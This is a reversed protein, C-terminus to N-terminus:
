VTMCWIQSYSRFFWGVVRQFSSTQNLFVNYIPWVSALSPNPNNYGELIFKLNRPFFFKKYSPLADYNRKLNTILEIADIMNALGKQKFKQWIVAM